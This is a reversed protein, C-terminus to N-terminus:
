PEREDGELKPAPKEGGDDAAVPEVAVVAPEAVPAVRPPPTRVPVPAPPPPPPTPAAEPVAVAPMPAPEVRPLPEREPPPAEPAIWVPAPPPAPAPAEPAAPRGVPREPEPQPAPDRWARPTPAPAVPAEPAPVVASPAPRQPPSPAPAPTVPAATVPSPSPVVIPNVLTPPTGRAGSRQWQDFRTGADRRERREDELRRAPYRSRQAYEFANWDSRYRWDDRWGANWGGNAGFGENRFFYSQQRGFTLAAGSDWQRQRWSASLLARGRDQLRDAEARDRGSLSGDFIRGDGRYVQMLQPGDFGYSMYSDRILYPATARPAYYYQVIGDRGPEVILTEGARSIWAWSEIGDYRFAFDPPSNGIVDAFGDAQDIWWFAAASPAPSLQPPAPAPPPPPPPAVTLRPTPVNKTATDTVTVVLPPVPVPVPKAVVVAVTRCRRVPKGKVRVTTCVRQTAARTAPKAVVVTRKRPKAEAAGSGTLGSPVVLAAGLTALLLARFSAGIWRKSEIM